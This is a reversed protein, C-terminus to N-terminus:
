NLKTSCENLSAYTEGDSQDLLLNRRGSILTPQKGEFVLDHQPFLEPTEDAMRMTGVGSLARCLMAPFHSGFGWACSLAKCTSSGLLTKVSRGNMQEADVSAADPRSDM